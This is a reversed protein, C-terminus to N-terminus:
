IVERIKFSIVFVEKDRSKRTPFDFKADDIVGTKILKQLIDTAKNTKGRLVYRENQFRLNTFEVNSFLESLILLFDSHSRFQAEINSFAEYKRVKSDLAQQLTLAESVASTQKSLARELYFSQGVLLLSSTLLYACFLYSIIKLSDIIPLKLENISKRQFFLGWTALPLKFMSKVLHTHIYESELATSNVTGLGIAAKFNTENKIFITEYSSNIGLRSSSTYLKPESKVTTIVDHKDNRIALIVTEPIFFSANFGVDEFKWTNYYTNGDETITIRSTSNIDSSQELKLFQLAQKKDEIPVSKLNESYQNRSFITVIPSFNENVLSLTITNGESLFRYMQGDYYSIHPLIFREFLTRKISQFNM